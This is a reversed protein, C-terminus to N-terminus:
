AFSYYLFIGASCEAPFRKHITRKRVSCTDSISLPWIKRQVRKVEADYYTNALGRITEDTLLGDDYAEALRTFVGDQHIYIQRSHSAYFIEDGIELIESGQNGFVQLVGVIDIGHYTGFYIFRLCKTIHEGEGANPVRNHDWHDAIAKRLETRKEETMELTCEGTQERGCGFLLLLMVTILVLALFRKMM